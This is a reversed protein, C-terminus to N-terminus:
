WNAILWAYHDRKALKIKQKLQPYKEAFANVNAGDIFVFMGGERMAADYECFCTEQDVLSISGAFHWLWSELEGTYKAPRLRSVDYPPRGDVIAADEPSICGWREARIWGVEPAEVTSLEIRRCPKGFDEFLDDLIDEHDRGGAIRLWIYYKGGSTKAAELLKLTRHRELTIPRRKQKMIIGGKREGLGYYTLHSKSM